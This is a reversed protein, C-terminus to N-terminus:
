IINIFATNADIRTNPNFDFMQLLILRLKPDNICALPNNISFVSEIQDILSNYIKPGTNLSLREPTETVLPILLEIELITCASSWIDNKTSYTYRRGPKRLLNIDAYRYTGELSLSEISTSAMYFTSIGFDAINLRGDNMILLNQPKIDRHIIGSKHIYDLGYLLERVYRIRIDSSLPHQVNCVGNIYTNTWENMTFKSRNSYLITALDSIALESVIYINTDISIFSSICMINSHTSLLGLIFIENIVPHPWYIDDDTVTLIQKIAINDVKYVKSFSGSAIVTGTNIDITTPKYKGINPIYNPLPTLGDLGYLVRFTENAIDHETISGIIYDELLYEKYLINDSLFKCAINTIDNFIYGSQQLIDIFIADM